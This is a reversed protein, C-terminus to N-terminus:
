SSSRSPRARWASRPSLDSSALKKMRDSMAPRINAGFQTRVSGSRATAAVAICQLGREGGIARLAADDISCSNVRVATVEGGPVQKVSVICTVGPRASPPRIWARQIKAVIPAHWRNAQDSNRLANGREEAELTRRLEAERAQRAKEEAAKKAAAAEDAAKKEAGEEGRRKKEAAAKEAAAKAAAQKEAELRQQKKESAERRRAAGAGEERGGEEATRAEGAGAREEEQKREVEAPDPKPPGQEEPTVPEPLNPEPAPEPQPAPPEPPPAIDEIGARRGRHSRHGVDDAPPPRHKWTFWGYVAAAVIASHLLM